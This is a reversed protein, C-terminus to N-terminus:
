RRGTRLEDFDSLRMTTRTSPDNQSEGKLVLTDAVFDHLGQKRETFAAMLFGIGLTLFSICHMWGRVSARAFTARKGGADVVFINMAKKGLTAQMPSSEMLSWYLSWVTATLAVRLYYDKSSSQLWVPHIRRVAAWTSQYLLLLILRILFADISIAAARSWFGAVNLTPCDAYDFLSAPNKSKFM